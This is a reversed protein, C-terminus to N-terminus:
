KVFARSEDWTSYPSPPAPINQPAQTTSYGAYFTAARDAEPSTHPTPAPMEAWSRNYPVTFIRYMHLHWFKWQDDERVFDVGYKLWSWEANFEGNTGPGTEVGPSIWVGQATRCDGAVEIVPTTLAHLHLHGIRDGEGKATAMVFKRVGAIGEYVGRNLELRTGPTKHAFLAIVEEDLGATHLFEYRGMLNQIEHVAILRDVEQEASLPKDRIQKAIALTVPTAALAAAALRISDRKSWPM